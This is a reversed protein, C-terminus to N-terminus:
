EDFLADANSLLDEMEGDSFGTRTQLRRLEDGPDYTPYDSGFLLRERPHARLLAHLADDAIFETCSSTELWLDRGALAKLSHEWQFLGGLHAGIVRLGPVADLIKALKYPCSPNEAPPLRDGIHIEFIFDDRAQEFMPLLRPDDLRFGQFDPHLKIGRIGAAKLRKLESEWDTFDPHLTGFAIVEPHGRQLQVAYNDAPIVQTPSTAACLTVVRDLGAREARKLLDEITGTGETHVDYHEELQRRVKDAIKPHFAHTHIDTRM